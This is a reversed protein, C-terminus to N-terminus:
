LELGLTKIGALWAQRADREVALLPHSRLQGDRGTVTMGDKNIAERAERARMHAELATALVYVATKTPLDFDAFVDRWIKRELEGLHSPPTPPEFRDDVKYSQWTDEDFGVVALQAKSKRGRQKM